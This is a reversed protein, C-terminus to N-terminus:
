FFNDVTVDSGSIVTGIGRHHIKQRKTKDFHIM